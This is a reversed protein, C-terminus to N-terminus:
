PHQLEFCLLFMSFCSVTKTESNRVSDESPKKPQFLTCLKTCFDHASGSIKEAFLETVKPDWKREHQIHSSNGAERTATLCAPKIMQLASWSNDFESPYAMNKQKAKDSQLVIINQFNKGGLSSSKSSDKKFNPMDQLHHIVKSKSRFLFVFHLLWCGSQKQCPFHPFKAESDLLNWRDTYAQFSLDIPWYRHYRYGVTNRM